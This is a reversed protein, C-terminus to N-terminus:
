WTLFVLSIAYQVKIMLYFRLGKPNKSMTFGLLSSLRCLVSYVIKYYGTKLQFFFCLLDNIFTHLHLMVLKVGFLKCTLKLSLLLLFSLVLGAVTSFLTLYNLTMHCNKGFNSKQSRDKWTNKRDNENERM